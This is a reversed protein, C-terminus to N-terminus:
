RNHFDTEDPIAHFRIQYMIDQVCKCIDPKSYKLLNQWLNYRIHPMDPFINRKAFATHDRNIHYFLKHTRVNFRIPSKRLALPTFIIRSSVSPSQLSSMGTKISAPTVPIYGKSVCLPMSITFTRLCYGFSCIIPPIGFDSIAFPFFRISSISRGTSSTKFVLPNCEM